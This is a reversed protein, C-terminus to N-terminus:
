CGALDAPSAIGSDRYSLDWDGDLAIHQQGTRPHIFFPNTLSSETVGAALCLPALLLAFLL